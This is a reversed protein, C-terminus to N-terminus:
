IFKSVAELLKEQTGELESFFTQRLQTTLLKEQASASIDCALLISLPLIIKSM